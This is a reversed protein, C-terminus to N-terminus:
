DAEQEADAMVEGHHRRRYNAPSVGVVKKFSHSFYYPDEYGLKLAIERIHIRTTLLMCAHQMKLKIFYDVPSYGSQERFLRSFHSKSMQAHEAMESLTLVRHINQQLFVVTSDINHLNNRLAPSFARNNFFLMALLHHLGQAAYIMREPVFGSAFATYCETFLQTLHEVVEQDVPLKYTDGPLQRMFFDGDSGIFHVWHLTWPDEESAGYAHYVNRPLLMAENASLTDYVDGVRFWGSGSLCLALINEPAGEGRECYHYRANPYWGMATPMLSNVLPHPSLEEIVKHPLVCLLQDKFGERLRIPPVITQLDPPRKKFGYRKM